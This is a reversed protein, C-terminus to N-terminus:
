RRSKPDVDRFTLQGTMLAQAVAQPRTTVGMRRKLQEIHYHATSQGLGLLRGIIWDDKGQAVLALCERERQTLETGAATLWPARARSTYFYFTNALVEVAVYSGTDVHENDPIVSCSARLTGPMWSLYLPVTYGHSLGYGAADALIIRQSETLSDSRLAADWFFPSPSKRARELVPDIEYLRAESFTRVWGPPYNHLMVAGPPPHFPDVHSCCAFHRFGLAEIAKLFEAALRDHPHSDTEACELFGRIVDFQNM